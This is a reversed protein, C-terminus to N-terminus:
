GPKEGFLPYLAIKLLTETYPKEIKKLVHITTLLAIEGAYLKAPLV